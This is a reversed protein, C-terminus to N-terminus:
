KSMLAPAVAHAANLQNQVLCSQPGWEMGDQPEYGAQTELPLAAGQAVEGVGVGSALIEVPVSPPREEASPALGAFSLPVM